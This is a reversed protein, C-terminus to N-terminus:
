VFGKKTCSKIATSSAISSIYVRPHCVRRWDWWSWCTGSAASIDLWSSKTRVSFVESSSFVSLAGPYIEREGARKKIWRKQPKSKQKNKIYKLVSNKIIENQLWSWSPSSKNGFAAASGVSIHIRYFCPRLCRSREM